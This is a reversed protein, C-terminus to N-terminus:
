QNPTSPRRSLAPSLQVVRERRCARVPGPLDLSAVGNGSALDTLREWAAFDMDALPWGEREWVLRLAARVLSGPQAALTARDFVLTAGARLREAEKLLASAAAVAERHAEEAQRALRGLVAVVAPNYDRELRPLLDHRIRNRTFRVDSNSRDTRFPQELAALFALLDARTTELLPRVVEIGEELPRRAAIGRLGQIGAGRLLRHLVTEAQDDASHGTAILRLGHSRAVKALWEYRAKRAQAELNVKATRALEGVNLRDRVLELGVYGAATLSEHLGAVFEEDADSEAGRLQHNLHAVILPTETAGRALLLVRLLAVSDPGGSVAVVLGEREAQGARLFDRVRRTLRAVVNREERRGAM